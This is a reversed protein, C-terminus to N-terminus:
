RLLFESFNLTRSEVIKSSIEKMGYPSVSFNGLKVRTYNVKHVRGDNGLIEVFNNEGDENRIIRMVRGVIKHRKRKGVNATVISNITIEGLEPDDRRVYVPNQTLSTNPSLMKIVFGKKIHSPGNFLM